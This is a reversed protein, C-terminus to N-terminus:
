TKQMTETLHEVFVGFVNIVNQLIRRHVFQAGPLNFPIVVELTWCASIRVSRLTVNDTPTGDELSKHDECCHSFPLATVIRAM